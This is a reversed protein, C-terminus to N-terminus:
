FPAKRVFWCSSWPNQSEYLRIPVYKCWLCTENLEKLPEQHFQRCNNIQHTRSSWCSASERQVPGPQALKKQM